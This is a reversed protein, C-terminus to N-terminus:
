VRETTPLTLHTYSVTTKNIRPLVFSEIISWEFRPARLKARSKPKYEVEKLSLVAPRKLPELGIRPSLELIQFAVYQCFGEHSEEPNYKGTNLILVDELVHHTLEHLFLVAAYIDEQLYLGNKILISSLESFDEEINNWMFYIGWDRGFISYPRYVALAKRKLSFRSRKGEVLYKGAETDPEWEENPGIWEPESVM